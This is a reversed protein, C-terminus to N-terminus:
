CKNAKFIFYGKDRNIVNVQIGNEELIKKISLAGQDKRIVYYLLGDKELHDFAGLLIQLVKDKGVRIPPNTIIIDYKDLVASYGDSVYTKGKFDKYRKINMNTLHVARKNIDVMEVYSDTINGIMIGLFGYGCGVDLVRKNTLNEEFYTELLLRSGFDISNKSFVGNDSYFMFFSSNYKYSLERIKSKLNMDNEFYHSM